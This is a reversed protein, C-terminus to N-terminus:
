MIEILKLNRNMLKKHPETLSAEHEVPLWPPKFIGIVTTGPRNVGAIREIPERKGEKLYAARPAATKTGLDAAEMETSVFELTSRKREERFEEGSKIFSDTQHHSKIQHAPPNQQPSPSPCELKGWISYSRLM